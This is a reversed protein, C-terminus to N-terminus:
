RELLLTIEAHVDTGLRTAHIRGNAFQALDVVWDPASAPSGKLWEFLADIPIDVGLAHRSLSQLSDFPQATGAASLVATRETWDLTALTTGLPSSLVLQGANAQGRLVFQAAIASREPYLVKVGLRGQWQPATGSSAGSVVPPLACGSLVLSLLLLSLVALMPVARALSYGVHRVALGSDAIRM